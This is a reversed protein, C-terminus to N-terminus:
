WQCLEFAQAPAFGRPVRCTQACINPRSASSALACAVPSCSNINQLLFDFTKLIASCPLVLIRLGNQESTKCTELDRLRLLSEADEHSREDLDPRCRGKIKRQPGTRRDVTQSRAIDLSRFDLSLRIWPEFTVQLVLLPKPQRFQPPEQEEALIVTRM